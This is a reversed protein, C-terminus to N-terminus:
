KSHIEWYMGGKQPQEFCPLATSGRVLDEKLMGALNDCVDVGPDGDVYHTAVRLNGNVLRLRAASHALLSFLIAMPGDIGLPFNDPSIQWDCWGLQAEDGQSLSQLMLAHMRCIFHILYIIYAAQATAITFARGSALGTVTVISGSIRLRQNLGMQDILEPLADFIVGGQVSLALGFVNSESLLVPFHQRFESRYRNARNAAWKRLKRGQPNLRPGLTKDWGWQEAEASVLLASTHWVERNNPIEQPSHDMSAVLMTVYRAGAPGAM